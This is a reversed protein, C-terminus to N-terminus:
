VIQVTSLESRIHHSDRVNITAFYKLGGHFFDPGVSPDSVLRLDMGYIDIENLGFTWTYEAVTLGWGIPLSDGDKLDENGTFNTPVPYVTVRIQERIVSSLDFSDKKTAPGPGEPPQIM